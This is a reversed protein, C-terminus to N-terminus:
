KGEEQLRFSYYYDAGALRTQRLIIGRPTEFDAGTVVLIVEGWQRVDVYECEDITRRGTGGGEQKCVDPLDDCRRMGDLHLWLYGVDRYEVWWPKWAGEFHYGSVPNDYIQKYLSDGRIILTDTNRTYSAVWTGVLDAEIFTPPLPPCNATPTRTPEEENFCDPENVIWSCAISLLLIILMAIAVFHLRNM